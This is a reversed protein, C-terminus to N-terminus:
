RLQVRGNFGPANCGLQHYSYVRIEVSDSTADRLMNLGDTDFLTPAKGLSNLRWTDMQLMYAFGSPCNVDAMVKLTGSPSNLLMGKFGFSADYNPKVDVYQIRTGLAKELNSFDTHGMFCYDPNGGERNIRVSLDILAEEIPKARGDQYIGALRTKDANRNVTFFSDGAGLTAPLWGNLGSLKINYDGQVFIYDSVAITACITTLNAATGGVTASLTLVGTDRNVTVVFGSGTKVTGTGDTASFVLSQGVEFNTVDDANSLILNPTAINTTTSVQGISGSGSRYLATAISRGISHLAGDIETTAARLFAGADSESAKIVENSISATAYDQVRTLFFAKLQTSTKNGQANSFTSSRGQPNGYILPLKLQDGGFKEFKPVMAFFPNNKYVLNQVEQDSFINKLAPAFTTLDLAM